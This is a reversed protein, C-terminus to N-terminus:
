APQPGYQNDGDSGSLYFIALILIGFPILHLLLWWGTRGTDHLRRVSLAWSPVFVAMGYLVFIVLLWWSVAFALIILGVRIAVNIIQFPWYETRNSRGNFDAYRILPQFFPM